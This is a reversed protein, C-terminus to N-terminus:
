TKSRVNIKTHLLNFRQPISLESHTKASKGLRPVCMTDNGLSYAARAVWVLIECCAHKYIQSIQKHSMTTKQPQKFVIIIAYYMHINIFKAM